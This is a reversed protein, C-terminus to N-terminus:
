SALRQIEDHIHYDIRSPVVFTRPRKQDRRPETALIRNQKHRQLDSLNNIPNPRRLPRRRSSMSQNHKWTTKKDVTGTGATAGAFTLPPFPRLCSSTMEQSTRRERHKVLSLRHRTPTAKLTSM